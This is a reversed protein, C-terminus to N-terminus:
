ICNTVGVALTTLFFVVGVAIGAVVGGINWWPNRTLLLVGVMVLMGAAPSGFGISDSCDQAADVDLAGAIFALVLCLAGLARAAGRSRRSTQVPPERPLEDDRVLRGQEDRHWGPPTKASTM